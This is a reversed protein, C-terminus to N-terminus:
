RQKKNVRNRKYVIFNVCFNCNQKFSALQLVPQYRGPGSTKILDPINIELGNPVKKIQSLRINKIFDTSKSCFM